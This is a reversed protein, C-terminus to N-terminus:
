ESDTCDDQRSESDTSNMDDDDVLGEDIVHPNQSSRGSSEQGIVSADVLELPNTGRALLPQDFYMTLDVILDLHPEQEQYVEEVQIPVDYLTRPTSNQVVHWNNGLKLDRAFFVQKAHSALIYPEDIYWKRSMNVSAVGFKNDIQLGNRDGVNFWDCKFVLM